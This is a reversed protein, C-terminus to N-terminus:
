EHRPARPSRRRPVGRAKAIVKNDLAHIASGEAVFTISSTSSPTGLPEGFGHIDVLRHGTRPDLVGLGMIRADFVVDCTPEYRLGNPMAFSPYADERIVRGNKDFLRLRSDDGERLVVFLRTGVVGFSGVSAGGSSWRHLVHGDGPRLCIISTATYIVVRDGLGRPADICPEDIRTRWRIAGSKANIGVAERGNTGFVLTEGTLAATSNVSSGAGVDSQWRVDGSRVSLAHVIGRRDAIVVFAGSIVPSSYITENETAYPRCSWLVHGDSRQLCYLEFPTKVFVRSGHVLPTPGALRGIKRKWRVDGTRADLAWAIGPSFSIAYVGGRFVVPNPRGDHSPLVMNTVGRLRTRWRTAERVDISLDAPARALENVDEM